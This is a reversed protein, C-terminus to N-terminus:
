RILQILYTQSYIPNLFHQLVVQNLVRSPLNSPPQINVYENGSLTKEMLEFNYDVMGNKYTTLMPGHFTVLDTRQTISILIATIDSYGM